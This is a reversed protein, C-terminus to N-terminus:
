AYGAVDAPNAGPPSFTFSGAIGAGGSLQGNAPYATSTVASPAAPPTADVTFACTGSYQGADLGDHAQVRMAYTRGDTLRGAPISAVAQAGSAVNTQAVEDNANPACRRPAM